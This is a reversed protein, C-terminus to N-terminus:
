QANTATVVAVSSPTSVGEVAGSPTVTTGSSSSGGGGGCAALALLALTPLILRSLHSM